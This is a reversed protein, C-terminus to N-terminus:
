YNVEIDRLYKNNGEQDKKSSDFVSTIIKRTNENVLYNYTNIMENTKSITENSNLPAKVLSYKKDNIDFICFGQEKTQLSVSVITSSSFLTNKNMDIVCDTQIISYDKSNYAYVPSVPKISKGGMLFMDNNYYLIYSGELDKKDTISPNSKEILDKVKQDKTNEYGGENKYDLIKNSYSINEVKNSDKLQLNDYYFYTLIITLLIILIYLYKKMNINYYLLIFFCLSKTKAKFENRWKIVAVLKGYADQNPFCSTLM